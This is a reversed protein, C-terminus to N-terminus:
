KRFEEEAEKSWSKTFIQKFVIHLLNKMDEEKFDHLDKDVGIRLKKAVGEEDFVHLEIKNAGKVDKVFTCHTCRKGVARKIIDAVM